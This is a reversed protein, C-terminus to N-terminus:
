ATPEAAARRQLETNIITGAADLGGATPDFNVDISKALALIVDGDLDAWDDPIVLPELAPTEAPKEATEAARRAVEERLFEDGLESVKMEKAKQEDTLVFKRGAIKSALSLRKLAPFSKWDDPIVVLEVKKDPEEKVEPVPFVPDPVEFTEYSDPIEVLFLEGLPVQTRAVDPTVGFIEANHKTHVPVLGTKKIVKM